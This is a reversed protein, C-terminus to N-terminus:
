QQNDVPGAGSTLAPTAVDGEPEYGLAVRAEDRDIIGQAYSKVVADTRVGENRTEPDRWLTSTARDLAGRDGVSALTLRAIEEWGEGFHILQTRVKAILGAESSKLSEGSPPVAQPQGLLYHYPLRSISSIAGVESEIMSQYPALDTAEFEGMTVPQPNPDEPDPPPVIWLRDVAAKFPEIPAGTDPDVPVDLGIAWRQRFAAFEAAVLADARYKNVADQNSMVADIESQGDDNLRPRNVLPVLPVSGLPNPAPWSVDDPSMFPELSYTGGRRWKATSRLKWVADPLYLYVVLRGEDDVWRKLGALRRRRGRPDSEVIADLPDEITISPGDFRQPEVLAYAVGKILAETMAIQSLADMDNEQWIRWARASSRQASFQFGRVEMRERTGDVVLSMFNSSFAKFRGGFAERFRESAFALPHEGRYYRDWTQLRDARADLKRMLRYVWWGPSRAEFSKLRSPTADLSPVLSPLSSDLPGVQVTEVVRGTMVDSVQMSM